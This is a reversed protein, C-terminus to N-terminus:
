GVVGLGADDCGRGLLLRWGTCRWRLLECRGIRCGIRGFDLAEFIEAMALGDRRKRRRGVEELGRM